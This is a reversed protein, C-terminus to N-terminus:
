IEQEISKLTLFYKQWMRQHPEVSMKERAFHDRIHSLSDAYDRYVVQLAKEFDGAMTQAFAGCTDLIHERFERVIQRRTVWASLVCISMFLAGFGLLIWPAWPLQMIGCSAGLLTFVLGMATFSRIAVNRHRIEKELLHRVKLNNIGLEAAQRLRSVFNAGSSQLSQRIPQDASLQIGMSEQIRAELEHWHEECNRLVESSDQNAVQEVAAQIREIFSKEIISATREGTFVRIISRLAGLRRQLLKSIWRGETEFTEAVNMLHHPLKQISHNRMEEIESDIQQIFRDQERLQGAHGEIREEIERLAGDAQSIWKRLREHRYELSELYRNIHTTLLRYSERNGQLAQKASVAFIPPNFDLKKIALDKLHGEMVEIDIPDRQDIQQIILCVKSHFEPALQLLFNWSSPSWPNDVPLVCCILDANSLLKIFEPPHVGDNKIGPTDVIQYHRLAAVPRTCIELHESWTEEAEPNGHRYLRIPQTNPFDSVECLDPTGLLGNLFASKGCNTEGCAIFLFAQDDESPEATLPLPKSLPTASEKALSHIGRMLQSLRERTTFYQEGYPYSSM